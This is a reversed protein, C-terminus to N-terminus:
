FSLIIFFILFELIIYFKLIVLILIFSLLFEFIDIKRMKGPFDLIKWSEYKGESIKFHTMQAFPQLGSFDSTFKQM